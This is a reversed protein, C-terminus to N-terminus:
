NTHNTKLKYTHKHASNVSFPAGCECGSPYIWLCTSYKSYLDNEESHPRVSQLCLRTFLSICAQSAELDLLHADLCAYTEVM